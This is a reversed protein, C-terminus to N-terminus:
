SLFISTHWIVSSTSQFHSSVPKISHRIWSESEFLQRLLDLSCPKPSFKLWQHQFYQWISPITFTSFYEWYEVMQFTDPQCWNWKEAYCHHVPLATFVYWCYWEHIPRGLPCMWFWFKINKCQPWQRSVVVGGHWGLNIRTEINTDNAWFVNSIHKIKYM